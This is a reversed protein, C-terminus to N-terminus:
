LKGDEKSDDFGSANQGVINNQCFALMHHGQPTDLFDFYITVGEIGLVDM